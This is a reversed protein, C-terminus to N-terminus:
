VSFTIGAPVSYRDALKMILLLDVSSVTFEKVKKIFLGLFNWTFAFNSPLAKHFNIARSVIYHTVSKHQVVIKLYDCIKLSSTTM